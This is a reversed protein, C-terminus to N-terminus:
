QGLVDDVDKRKQSSVRDITSKARKGADIATKGTIGEIVQNTTSREPSQAKNKNANESDTTRSCGALLVAAVIILLRM